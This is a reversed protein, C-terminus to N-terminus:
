YQEMTRDYLGHEIHFLEAYNISCPRKFFSNMNTTIFWISPCFVTIEEKKTEYFEYAVNHLKYDLDVPKILTLITGM